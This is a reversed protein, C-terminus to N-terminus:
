RGAGAGIGGAARLDAVPARALAVIVPVNYVISELM